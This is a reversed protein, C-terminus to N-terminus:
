QAIRDLESGEIAAPATTEANREVKLHYLAYRGHVYKAHAADVITARATESVAARGIKLTGLHRRTGKTDQGCSLTGYAPHEDSTMTLISLECGIDVVVEADITKTGALLLYPLVVATHIGNIRLAARPDIVPGVPTRAFRHADEVV